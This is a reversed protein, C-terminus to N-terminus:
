RGDAAYKHWHIELHGDLATVLAGVRLMGMQAEGNVFTYIARTSVTSNALKALRAPSVGLDHMRNGIQWAIAEFQRRSTRPPFVLHGVPPPSPPAPEEDWWTICFCGGALRRLLSEARQLRMDAKGELLDYISRVSFPKGLRKALAVPSVGSARMKRRIEEVLRHQGQPTTSKLQRRRGFRRDRRPPLGVQGLIRAVDGDTLPLLDDEAM